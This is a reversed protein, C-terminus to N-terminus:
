LEWQRSPVACSHDEREFALYGDILWCIVLESSRRIAGWLFSVVHRSITSLWPQYWLMIYFWWFIDWKWSKRGNQLVHFDELNKQPSRRGQFLLSILTMRSRRGVNQPLLSCVAAAVVWGRTRRWLPRLSAEVLFNPRHTDKTHITRRARGWNLMTSINERQLYYIM